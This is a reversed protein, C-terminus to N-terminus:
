SRKKYLAKWSLYRKGNQLTFMSRELKIIEFFPEVHELLEIATLQPPGVKPDERAEDKCGALSLWHGGSTLSDALNKAFASRQQEPIIHYVARDFAFDQTGPSVPSLECIDALLFDITTETYAEIARNKAKQLATGSTETVTVKCGNKALWIANAGTGCGIEIVNKQTAEPALAHFYEVLEEAPVSIDWPLNTELRYRTEWDYPDVATQASQNENEASTM